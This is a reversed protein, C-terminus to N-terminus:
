IHQSRPTKPAILVRFAPAARDLDYLLLALIGLLMAGTIYPTGTFGVGLALSVRLIVASEGFFRSGRVWRHLRLVASERKGEALGQVRHM